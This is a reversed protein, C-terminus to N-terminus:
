GPKRPSAHLGVVRYDARGRFGFGDAAFEYGPSAVSFFVQVDMLGPEHFAIVGASDTWLRVGHVTRLEVLPVGRGTQEDADVIVANLRPNWAIAM